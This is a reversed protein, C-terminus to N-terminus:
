KKQAYVILLNPKRFDPLVKTIINKIKYFKKFATLYEHKFIKFGSSLLEKKIIPLTYERLHANYNRGERNLLKLNENIPVSIVIQGGNKLVRNIEKMAQLIKNREIHELVDLVAITEFFSDQFPLNFLNAVYFNGAIEKNLYKITKPSFDVGYISVKLNSKIIKKELYGRGLGVDLFKGKKPELFKLVRNIKDIYIPSHILEYNKQFLYKNWLKPTNPNLKNKVMASKIM